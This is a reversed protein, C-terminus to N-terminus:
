QYKYMLLLHILHLVVFRLSNGDAEAEVDAEAEIIVDRHARAIENQYNVAAVHDVHSMEGVCCEVNEKYNDDPNFSEPTIYISM